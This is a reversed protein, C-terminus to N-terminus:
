VHARGIQWQKIRADLFGVAGAADCNKQMTQALSLALSRSHPWRAWAARALKLAQQGNGQDGALLVALHAIVPSDNGDRKAQVLAKEAQVTDQNLRSIYAVGYWAASQAVGALKKADAQFQRLAQQRSRSDNAQIARLEARVYWYADSDRHPQKPLESIRNEIDSLRQISLPHTSTFANGGSGENLRSANMLQRFMRVMGRPDYGAARMM